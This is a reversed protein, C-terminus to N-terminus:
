TNIEYVAAESPFDLVVIYAPEFRDLEFPIMWPPLYSM